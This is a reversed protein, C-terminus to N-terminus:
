RRLKGEMVQVRRMLAEACEALALANNILVQSEERMAKLEGPAMAEAATINPGFHDERVREVWARPVKMKAALAEDSFSAAYHGRDPDYHENLSDYIRRNDDRTPQRPPAAKPEPSTYVNPPTPSTSPMPLNSIVTAIEQLSRLPKPTPKLKVPADPPKITNPKQGVFRKMWIAQKQAKSLAMKGKPEPLPQQPTLATSRSLRAKDNCKPCTIHKVSDAQTWGRQALWKVAAGVPLRTYVYPEHCRSCSVTFVDEFGGGDLRRTTAHVTPLPSITM